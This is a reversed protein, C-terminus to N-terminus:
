PNSREDSCKSNLHGGAHDKPRRGVAILSMGPNPLVYDALRTLPLLRDFWIMQRPSLHRKRLIRGSVWWGLAGFKCFRRTLVVEFGAREMKERLEDPEYRRCHGLERDLPTYLWMGAPVTIVCYGGPVLTDYFRRLVQEDSELHELVNSCFVTDLREDKWKDFDEQCTLDGHVVRVNKRYGFRDILRAVYMPNQEVAVLRQRDLLLCSLNGIGAGAELIRSGLYERCHRLIWRNYRQARSVSKLIYFGSHYTFRTDFFRTYVMQWLCKVADWAGIKKGELYTRGSYSIPVEYIRAGWQALRCATEPEITFSNSGLRLQKLVDARIMKYCTEMDTLNTDNLMNSLTTLLHNALSHWFLLVRRPHGAFRSGFVAEAKAELIPGLLRDYERPDYELDADQVVAVDGTMHEIATRIAAGKGLNQPHRFARIRNDREALSQIEEWSGDSSGDDVIILELEVDDCSDLVRGVIEEVTWCENYVPMLVSLKTRVGPPRLLQAEAPHRRPWRNKRDDEWDGTKGVTSAVSPDHPEM